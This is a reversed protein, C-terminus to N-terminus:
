EKRLMEKKVKLEQKALVVKWYSEQASALYQEIKDLSTYDSAKIELKTIKINGRDIAGFFNKGLSQKLSFSLSTDHSPNISTFASNSWSRLDAAELELTTGTPMKKSLGVKYESALSKSGAITSARKLQSDTYEVGGSLITDFISEADLIETRKALCDFRVIQIDLNNYLALASVDDISLYLAEEAKSEQALLCAATFFHIALLIFLIKKTM